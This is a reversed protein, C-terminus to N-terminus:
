EKRFSVVSNEHLETYGETLVYEGETLGKNIALVHDLMKYISVTKLVPKALDSKVTYIKGNRGNASILAKAPILFMKEDRNPYIEVKVFFGSRLKLNSNHLTLEVEYLGSSPDPANSIRTIYASLVQDPYADPYITASDNLDINVLQKDSVGVKVVWEQVQSGFSVIPQGAAVMENDSAHKYLIRGKAPAYISSHELNFRAVKLDARALNYASEANQLNELTGVTDAYLNQARELDRKAKDLAIEAQEARAEMEDLNLQALLRGKNVEDGENVYIKKILGGTKFSLNSEEKSAILGSTKFSFSVSEKMLKHAKVKITDSNITQHAPSQASISFVTYYGIILIAPILIIWSFNPISINTKKSKM